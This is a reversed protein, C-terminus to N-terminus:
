PRAFTLPLASGNQTFTGAIANPSITGTYSANIQPMAFTLTGDSAAITKIAIGYGGQYPSDLTASLGGGSAHAVHLALLLSGGQPKLTGLWTGGLDSTGVASSTLTLPVSVGHQTFTGSIANGSLTGRYAVDLKKINFTVYDGNAAIGDVPITGTGQYPSLATATLGSGADAITMVYLLTAGNPFNLMGSWTGALNSASAAPGALAVLCSLVILALFRYM